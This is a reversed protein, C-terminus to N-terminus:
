TTQSRQSVQQQLLYAVERLLKLQSTMLALRWGAIDLVTAAEKITPLDEKTLWGEYGGNGGFSTTLPFSNRFRIRTEDFGDLCIFHGGEYVGPIWPKKLAIVVKNQYIAQRLGQESLDDLFAYSKIKRTAADAYAEPTILSVDKSVILPLTEDSPFFKNLPIGKLYWSHMLAALTTGEKDPLGDLTKAIAYAFRGSLDEIIPVEIARLETQANAVSYGGCEPLGNQYYTPLASVDLTYTKPLVVPDQVRGLLIRRPDTPSELAGLNPPRIDQM